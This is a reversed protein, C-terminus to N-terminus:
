FTRPLLFYVEWVFYSGCLKSSSWSSLYTRAMEYFWDYLGKTVQIRDYNPKRTLENSKVSVSRTNRKELGNSISIQRCWQGILRWSIRTMGTTLRFLSCTPFLPVCGVWKKEPFARVSNKTNEQNERRRRVIKKLIWISSTWITPTIAWKKRSASNLFILARKGLM